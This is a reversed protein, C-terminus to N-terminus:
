LFRRNSTCTVTPVPEAVVTPRAILKVSNSGSVTTWDTMKDVATLQRTRIDYYGEEMDITTM